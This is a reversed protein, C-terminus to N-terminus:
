NLNYFTLNQRDLVKKLLDPRRKLTKLRAQKERWKKIEQHNGSLLIQPVKKRQYIEPRTYQPYELLDKSFSEDLSSEDKGLVGPILRSVAEIVVMAPLEGGTLVYDGISIEKDALNRVREDFGEYHGCVLILSQYKSLRRTIKQNFLKGQPTLLIVKSKQDKVKSKTAALVKDLVDVRLVMGAGGGYPRDDVQKRKGIGFNRLNHLNIAIKGKEQARKIISTNKFAEFIEPFLTIVEFNM